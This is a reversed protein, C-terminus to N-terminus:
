IPIPGNSNEVWSPPNERVQSWTKDLAVKISEIWEQYVAKGSTQAIRTKELGRLNFATFETELKSIIPHEKDPIFTEITYDQTKDSLIITRDDSRIILRVSSGNKDGLTAKVEGVLNLLVQADAFITFLEPNTPQVIEGKSKGSETVGM